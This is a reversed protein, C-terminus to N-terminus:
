NEEMEAVHSPLRQQSSVKNKHPEPKSPLMEPSLVSSVSIILAASIIVYNLRLLIKYHLSLNCLQYIIGTCNHLTIRRGCSISQLVALFLM